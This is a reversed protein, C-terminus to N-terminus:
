LQRLHESLSIAGGSWPLDIRQVADQPIQQSEHPKELSFNSKSFNLTVSIQGERLEWPRLDFARFGLKIM